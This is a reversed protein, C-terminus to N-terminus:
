LAALFGGDVFITHGTIFSAEDSCLFVAAAGIDDPTGWRGLPTRTSGWKSF